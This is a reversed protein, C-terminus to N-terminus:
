EGFEDWSVQMKEVLDAFWRNFRPDEDVYLYVPFLQKSWDRDTMLLKLLERKTFWLTKMLEIAKDREPSPPPPSSVRRAKMM